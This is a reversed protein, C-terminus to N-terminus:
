EHSTHFEQLVQHPPCFSCWCSSLQTVQHTFICYLLLANPDSLPNIVCKRNEPRIHRISLDLLELNWIDSLVLLKNLIHSLMEPPEVHVVHVTYVSCVPLFVRTSKLMM